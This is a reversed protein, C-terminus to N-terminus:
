GEHGAAGPAVLGRLDAVTLGVLSGRVHVGPSPQVPAGHPVAVVVAGAALGARVGNPSDELVVSSRIDAGLREAATRYPLPDPKNRAVEDGAIVVGFEPLGATRLAALTPDVIRRVSNSVLAIPVGAAAVEAVLASAGPQLPIPESSLYGVMADVLMAAIEDETTATGSRHRFYRAADALSGGLINLQDPESWTGGLASMTAVEARFWIPETDVLLGDMDFLVASLNM